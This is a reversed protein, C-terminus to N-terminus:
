TSFYTYISSVKVPTVALVGNFKVAVFTDSEVELHEARLIKILFDYGRRKETIPAGVINQARM